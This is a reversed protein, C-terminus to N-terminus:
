RPRLLLGFLVCLLTLWPFLSGTATSAAINCGGSSAAAPKPKGADATSPGGDSGAGADPKDSTDGAFNCCHTDSSTCEGSGPLWTFTDKSRLSTVQGDPPRLDWRLRISGVIDTRDLHFCLEQDGTQIPKDSVWPLWGLEPKEEVFYFADLKSDDPVDVCGKVRRGQYAFVVENVPSMAGAAPNHEGDIIKVVGQRAAWANYPPSFVYGAVTYVGAPVDALQWRVPLLAQASTIPRRADDRTIRLWNGEFDARTELVRAPPLDTQAPSVGSAMEVAAASRQVDNHTIWLPFVEGTGHTDTFPIYIDDVGVQYITGTLAFFQHTKADTVPIDGPSIATDDVMVSYEIDLHEQERKDAVM